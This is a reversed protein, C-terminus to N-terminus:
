TGSPADKHENKTRQWEDCEESLQLCDPDGAMMGCFFAYDKARCKDCLMEALPIDSDKHKRVRALCADCVGIRELIRVMYDAASM